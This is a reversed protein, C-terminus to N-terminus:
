PSFLTGVSGFFVGIAQQEDAGARRGGSMAEGAPPVSWPMAPELPEWLALGLAGEHGLEMNDYGLLRPSWRM